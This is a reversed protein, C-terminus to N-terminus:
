EGTTYIFCGMIITWNRGIYDALDGAALSGFFTGASLISVILSLTSGKLADQDPGAVQHVFVKSGTVGNIYQPLCVDTLPRDCLPFFM